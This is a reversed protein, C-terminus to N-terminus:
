GYGFYIQALMKETLSDQLRIQMHCWMDKAAICFDEVAAMQEEGDLGEEKYGHAHCVGLDDQQLHIHLLIRRSTLSVATV